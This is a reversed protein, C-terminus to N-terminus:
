PCAFVADVATALTVLDDETPGADDLVERVVEWQAADRAVATPELVRAFTRVLEWEGAAEADCSILLDDLRSRVVRATGFALAGELQATAAEFRTRGEPTLDDLSPDDDSPELDRLCRFASVGDWVADNAGFGVERFAASLGLGGARNTGGTYYAWASDCDKAAATFCTNAEKVTSLYLFWLIAGDIRGALVRPDGTGMQGMMFAENIMPALTSPGICRDPHKTVNSAVTCQKDSDVGPQWDEMPIEPFRLDERRVLRSELGEDLAYQTRALTFDDPTPAQPGRLLRRIEEYAEIRAITSPTSDVLHYEGDDTVCSPWTGAGPVYYGAARTCGEATFPDLEAGEFCLGEGGGDTGAETDSGASGDEVSCAVLLWPLGLRVTWV